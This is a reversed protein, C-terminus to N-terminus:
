ASVSRSERGGLRLTEPWASARDRGTRKGPAKGQGAEKKNAAGPNVTLRVETKRAGEVRARCTASRKESGTLRAKPKFNKEQPARKLGAPM